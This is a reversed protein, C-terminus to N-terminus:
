RGDRAYTYSGLGDVGPRLDDPNKQSNQCTGSLFTHWVDFVIKKDLLDKNFILMILYM